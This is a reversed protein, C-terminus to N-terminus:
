HRRHSPAQCVLFTASNADAQESQQADLKLRIALLGGLGAARYESKTSIPTSTM